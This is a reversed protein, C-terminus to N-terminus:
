LYVVPKFSVFEVGERLLSERIELNIKEQIDMYKNYDADLVYYAAEIVLGSDQFEKFHARDFKVDEMSEIIGRILGPIKKLQEQMTAHNVRFSFEVRRQNMRKYNRIRTSTLNSNSVVIEEGSLARIRTSKLGIREVTGM